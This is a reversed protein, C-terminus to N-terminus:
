VARKICIGFGVPSKGKASIYDNLRVVTDPHAINVSSILELLHKRLAESQSFPTEGHSPIELGNSSLISLIEEFSFALRLEDEDGLESLLYSYLSEM